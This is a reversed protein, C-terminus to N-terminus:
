ENINKVGNDHNAWIIFLMIGCIIVSAASFHWLYYASLVVFAGYMGKTSSKTVAAVIVFGAALLAIAIPTMFLLGGVGTAVGKGGKYRHWFPYVHGLVVCFLGIAIYLLDFALIHGLVVVIAGKLADGFMTVFFASKGLVRGANRAGFNGSGASGLDVGRVRGLMYATLFTGLVYSGFWYLGIMM